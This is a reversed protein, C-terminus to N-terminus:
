LSNTLETLHSVWLVWFKTFIWTSNLNLMRHTLFINQTYSNWNKAEWTAWHHIVWRGICSVLTQDQNPFISPSIAVWELIRAQSIGCISSGPPSCDVPDCLIPCSQPLKARMSDQPPYLVLRETSLVKNTRLFLRAPHQQGWRVPWSALPRLCYAVQWPKVELPAPVPM